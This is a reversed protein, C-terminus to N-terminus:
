LKESQWGCPVYNSHLSNSRNSRIYSRIETKEEHFNNKKLKKTNTSRGSKSEVRHKLRARPVKYVLHSKKTKFPRQRKFKASANHNSIEFVGAPIQIPLLVVQLLIQFYYPSYYKLITWFIVLWKPSHYKSLKPINCTGCVVYLEHQKYYLAFRIRGSYSVVIAAWECIDNLSRKSINLCGLGRKQETEGCLHLESEM